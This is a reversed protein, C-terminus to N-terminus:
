SRRESRQLLAADSRSRSEARPAKAAGRSGLRQPYPMLCRWQGAVVWEFVRLGVFANFAPSASTASSGSQTGLTRQTEPQEPIPLSVPSRIGAVNAPFYCRRSAVSSWAMCFRIQKARRAAIAAHV